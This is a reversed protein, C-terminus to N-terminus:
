KKKPVEDWSINIEKLMLEFEDVSLDDIEKQTKDFMAGVLYDNAEEMNSASIKFEWDQGIEAGKLLLNNYTRKIKRSIFEKKM